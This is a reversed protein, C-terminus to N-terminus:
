VVQDPRSDTLVPVEAVPNFLNALNNAQFCSDEPGVPGLDGGLGVPGYLFAVKEANDPTAEVRTPMPMVLRLVDGNQWTGSVEPYTGPVSTIDLREGNLWLRLGGEAWAPCRFKLTLRVLTESRFAFLTQDGGPYTTEQIVKLGKAVWNLRSPVYLNVYLEDGSQFYISDNYKTPSEM